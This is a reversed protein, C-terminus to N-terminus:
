RQKDSPPFRALKPSHYRTRVNSESNGREGRFWRRKEFWRRLPKCTGKVHWNQKCADYVDCTLLVLMKIESMKGQVPHPSPDITQFGGSSFLVQLSIEVTEARAYNKYELYLAYSTAKTRPISHFSLYPFSSFFFSSPAMGNQRMFSSPLPSFTMLVKEPFPLLHLFSSHLTCSRNRKYEHGNVSSQRPNRIM